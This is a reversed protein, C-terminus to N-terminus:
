VTCRHAHAKMSPPKELAEHQETHVGRGGNAVLHDGHPTVATAVFGVNGM